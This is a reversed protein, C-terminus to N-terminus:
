KIIIIFLSFLYILIKKLYNSDIFLFKILYIFIFLYFINDQLILKFIIIGFKIMILYFILSKIPSFINNEMKNDVVLIDILLM